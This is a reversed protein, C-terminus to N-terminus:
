FGLAWSPELAPRLPRSCHSLRTHMHTPTHTPPGGNTGGDGGISSALAVFCHSMTPKKQQPVFSRVYGGDSGRVRSGGAVEKAPICSTDM